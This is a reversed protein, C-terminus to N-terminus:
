LDNCNKNTQATTYTHTDPPHTHAGRTYAVAGILPEEKRGQQPLAQRLM